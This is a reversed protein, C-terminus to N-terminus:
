IRRLQDSSIGLPISPASKYVSKAVTDELIVVGAGIVCESGINIGDRIVASNGIFSGENITVNGSLSACPAIFCYNNIVSHHGIHCGSWLIVAHGLKVFPQVIVGEQIFSNDGWEVNQAVIADKSIYSAFHYGKSKAQLYIDRRVSNTQTYGVAVFMLFQEQSYTHEVEEFPVLPLGLFTGSSIFSENVTFAVVEYDSSNSFYYYVFEAFDGTGFIVVKQM